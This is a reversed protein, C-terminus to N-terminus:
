KEKYTIDQLAVACTATTESSSLAKLNKKNTEREYNEFPKNQKRFTACSGLLISQCECQLGFGEFVNLILWIEAGWM